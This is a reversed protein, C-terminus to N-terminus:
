PPAMLVKLHGHKSIRGAEGEVWEPNTFDIQNLKSTSCISRLLLTKNCTTSAALENNTFANELGLSFFGM